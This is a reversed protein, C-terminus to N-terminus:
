KAEVKKIHEPLKAICRLMQEIMEYTIHDREKQTLHKDYGYNDPSDNTYDRLRWLCDKIDNISKLEIRTAYELWWEYMNKETTTKNM